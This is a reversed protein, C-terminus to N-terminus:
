TITSQFLYKKFFESTGVFHISSFIKTLFHISPFNFVFMLIVEFCECFFYAVYAVFFYVILHTYVIRVERSYGLM